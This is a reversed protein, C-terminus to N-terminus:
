LLRPAKYLGPHIPYLCMMNIKTGSTNLL